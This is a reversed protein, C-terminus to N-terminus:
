TFFWLFIGFGLAAAMRGRLTPKQRQQNDEPSVDDSGHVEPTLVLAEMEHPTLGLVRLTIDACKSGFNGEWFRTDKGMVAVTVEPRKWITGTTDLEFELSTREWYVGPPAEIIGSALRKPPPIRPRERGLLPPRDGEQLFAILKFISPCDTRGTYRASVELRVLRPITNSYNHDGLRLVKTLDVVQSMICDRYTSVFNTTIPPRANSGLVPTQLLPPISQEPGHQEVRWANHISQQRWGNLGEAGNPNVLFNRSGAEIALPDHVSVNSAGISDCLVCSYVQECDKSSGNCHFEACRHNNNSNNSHTDQEGVLPPKPCPCSDGPCPIARLPVGSSHKDHCDDCFHVNGYCVHTSPACCYRCKWTLYRGHESPNQCVSQSQPACAPCLKAELASSEGLGDACAITGGFYPNKCHSCLYFAYKRMAEKYRAENCPETTTEPLLNHEDILQHVKTRLKDTSRLLDKPLDPHDDEGFISGCKGCQCGNFLLRQDDNSATMSGVKIQQVICDLHWKHGCRLTIVQRKSDELSDYCIACETSDDLFSLKNESLPLSASSKSSM